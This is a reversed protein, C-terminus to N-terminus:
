PAVNFSIVKSYSIGGKKVAVTVFYTGIKNYTTSSVILTGGNAGKIENGDFYWKISDYQDPKVVTIVAETLKGEGGILYITGASIEPEDIDSFDAFSIEFSKEAKINVTIGSPQELIYNSAHEGILKIGTSVSKNNGADSSAVTGVGLNFGVSDGDVIDKLTGGSLTVTTSGDYVRDTATVGSITITKPEITLTGIAGAFELYVSGGETKVLVDYEGASTPACENKEYTASSYFVTIEGATTNNIDEGKFSVTIGQSKGNYTTNNNNVTFNEAILTPKDTVYVTAVDSLVPAAGDASIECFYYYTGKILDDPITFSADTKGNISAAGTYNGTTSNYWQYKLAANGTVSARVALSSTINGFTVNTLNAPQLSITIVPIIFIPDSTVYGSYGSRMVTVTINYGVDYAQVTYTDGTGVVTDGREWAYSIIGSGGLASTEAALTKGAEATGSISVIGELCPLAPDTVPRTSATVSDMYGERTVTVTISYGVDDAQVTYTDGTGVVTDGRKWAYSITGSGGLACTDAALTEGVKATGSISVKGSLKPLPIDEKFVFEVEYEGIQIHVIVTNFEPWKFDLETDNQILGAIANRVEDQDKYDAGCFDPNNSAIAILAADVLAKLEILDDPASGKQKTFYEFWQAIEEINEEDVGYIGKDSFNKATIGAGEFDWEGNEKNLANLIDSIDIVSSGGGGSIKGRAKERMEDIDGWLVCGSFMAAFLSLPIIVLLFIAKGKNTNTRTPEHYFKKKM